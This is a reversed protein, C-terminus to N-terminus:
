WKIVVEKLKKRLEETQWYFWKKGAGPTEIIQKYVKPDAVELANMIMEPTLVEDIIELVRNKPMFMLIFSIPIKVVSPLNDEDILDAIFAGSALLTHLQDPRLQKLKGYFFGAIMRQAISSVGVNKATEELKAVKNKIDNITKVPIINAIKKSIGAELSSVRM